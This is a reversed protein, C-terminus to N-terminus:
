CGPRPCGDFLIVNQGLPELDCLANTPPRRSEICSQGNWVMGVSDHPIRHCICCTLKTASLDAESRKLWNGTSLISPPSSVRFKVPNAPRAGAAGILWPRIVTM